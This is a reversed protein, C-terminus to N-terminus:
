HFLHVQVTQFSPHFYLRHAVESRFEYALFHALFLATQNQADQSTNVTKRQETMGREREKTACLTVPM